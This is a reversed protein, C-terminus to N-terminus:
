SQPDPPRVQSGTLSATETLKPGILVCRYEGTGGEPPVPRYPQALGVEQFREGARLPAAAPPPAGHVHGSTEGAGGPAPAAAPASGCAAVTVLAGAAVVFKRIGMGM